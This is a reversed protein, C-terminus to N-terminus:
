QYKLKSRSFSLLLSIEMCIYRKNELPKIRFKTGHDAGTPKKNNEESDRQKCQEDPQHLLIFTFADPTNNDNNQKGASGYIYRAAGAPVGCGVEFQALFFSLFFTAR